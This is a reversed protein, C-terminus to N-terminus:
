DIWDIPPFALVLINETYVSSELLERSVLLPTRICAAVSVEGAGGEVGSVTFECNRRFKPM